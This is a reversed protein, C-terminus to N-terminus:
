LIFSSFRAHGDFLHLPFGEDAKFDYEERKYNNVNNSETITSCFFFGVLGGPLYVVM